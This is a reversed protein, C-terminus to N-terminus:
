SKNKIIRSTILIQLFVATFATVAAAATELTGSGFVHRFFVASCSLVAIFVIMPFLLVLLVHMFISPGDAKGLKEYVNQCSNKHGCDKCFGNQAMYEVIMVLFFSIYDM